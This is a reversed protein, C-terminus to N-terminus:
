NVESINSTIVGIVSSSTSLFDSEEVLQPAPDMDPDSKADFQFTGLIRIRISTLHPHHFIEESL